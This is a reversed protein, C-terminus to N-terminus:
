IDRTQAHTHAQRHTHSYGWMRNWVALGSADGRLQQSPLAAVLETAQWTQCCLLASEGWIRCCHNVHLPAAEHMFTLMCRLRMRFGLNPGFATLGWRKPIPVLCLGPCVCRSGIGVAHWPTIHETGGGVDLCPSSWEGQCHLSEVDRGAGGEIRSVVAAESRALVFVVVDRAFTSSQSFIRSHLHSSKLKWIRSSLAGCPRSSM